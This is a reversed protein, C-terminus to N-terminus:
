IRAARAPSLESQEAGVFCLLEPQYVKREIDAKCVFQGGQPKADASFALAHNPFNPASKGFLDHEFLVISRSSAEFFLRAKAAIRHSRPQQLAHFFGRAKCSTVNPL